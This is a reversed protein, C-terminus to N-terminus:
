RPVVNQFNPFQKSLYQPFGVFEKLQGNVVALLFHPEEKYASTDFLYVDNFFSWHENLNKYGLFYRTTIENEPVFHGGNEVRIQVRRKAEEISDMCFFVMRLNYHAEKFKLPWYLPTSNFNTEYTFDQNTEISEKVAEELTVRSLNHAMKEKLESDPLSEYNALYIKDYDFSGVKGNTFANAFSSKGSGNCGAIVTLTPV